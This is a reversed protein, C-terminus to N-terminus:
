FLSLKVTSFFIITAVTALILLFLSAHSEKTEKKWARRKRENDMLRALQKPTLHNGM